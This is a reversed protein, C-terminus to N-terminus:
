TVSKRIEVLLAIVREAEEVTLNHGRIQNCPGCCPLVNNVHYGVKNDKRDLWGGAQDLWKGCYHCPRTILAVIDDETLSFEIGRRHAETRAKYM